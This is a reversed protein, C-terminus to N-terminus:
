QLRGGVEVPEFSGVKGVELQLDGNEDVEFAPSFKGGWILEDHRYSRRANVSQGFTEDFGKILIMIETQADALDAATKGFLPSNPTIPHVVTWTLPFFIVQDRELELFAYKRQMRGNVQEVTMLLLKANLELLNNNRRNVVRFQLSSGDGYPTVLMNESFGIRASPRSFRGFVLGTVIAFGMLGALAELAAIANAMPGSPWVNGYGVTTLTHTSFFFANLFRLGATSAEAGKLHDIGIALYLSAFLLNTTIFAGLVILSFGTWSSSILFLYPHVDRLTVGTRRVNFEGNPNIARNLAGTYKQTLGPDFSTQQM